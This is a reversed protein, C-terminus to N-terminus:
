RWLNKLNQCPTSLISLAVSDDCSKLYPRYGLCEEMYDSAKQCETRVDEQYDISDGCSFFAILLSLIFASIKM